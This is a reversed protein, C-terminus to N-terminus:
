IFEYRCICWSKGHEVYKVEVRGMDRVYMIVAQSSSYIAGGQLM